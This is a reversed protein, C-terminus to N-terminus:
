NGGMAKEFQALSATLGKLSFKEVRPKNSVSDHFSVTMSYGAKMEHLLSSSESFFMTIVNTNKISPEVKLTHPAKGDVKIRLSPCGKGPCDELARTGKPAKFLLYYTKDALKPPRSIAVRAKSDNIVQVMQLGEQARHYQWDAAACVAPVQFLFAVAIWLAKKM